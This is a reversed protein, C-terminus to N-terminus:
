GHTGNAALLCQNALKLIHHSLQKTNLSSPFRMDLQSMEILLRGKFENFNIGAAEGVVSQVSEQIKYLAKNQTSSWIILLKIISM